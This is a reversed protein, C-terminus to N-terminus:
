LHRVLDSFVSTYKESLLDAVETPAFWQMKQESSLPDLVLDSNKPLAVLYIVLALSTDKVALNVNTQVTAFHEPTRSFTVGIEEQLERKLAGLFTEGEQVKGGPLDWRAPLAGKPSLEVLLVEGTANQILGKVGILFQQELM